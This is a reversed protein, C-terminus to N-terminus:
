LPGLHHYTLFVVCGVEQNQTDFFQVRWTIRQRHRHPETQVEEVRLVPLLAMSPRVPQFFRVGDLGYGCIFHEQVAPVWDRIHWQIYPQLGSAVIGRFVSAKAATEDTHIPQPDNRQAFRIIEEKSLLVPAFSWSNGVKLDKLQLIM